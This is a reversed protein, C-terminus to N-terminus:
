SGVHIDLEKEASGHSPDAERGSTSQQEISWQRVQRQMAQVATNDIQVSVTHSYDGASCIHGTQDRACLTCTVSWVTTTQSARMVALHKVYGYGDDRYEKAKCLEPAMIDVGDLVITGIPGDM